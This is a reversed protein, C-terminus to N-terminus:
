DGASESSRKLSLQGKPKGDVIIKKAQGEQFIISITDGQVVNRSGEKTYYTSQGQEVSLVEIEKNRMTFQGKVGILENQLVDEVQELLMKVGDLNVIYILDQIM